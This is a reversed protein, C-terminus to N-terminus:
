MFGRVGQWLLAIAILLMLVYAIRYFRDTPTIWV